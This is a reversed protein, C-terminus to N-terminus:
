GGGGGGRLRGKTVYDDISVTSRGTWLGFPQTQPNVPWGSNVTTMMIKNTWYYLLIRMQMSVTSFLLVALDSLLM